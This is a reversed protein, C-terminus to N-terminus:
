RMCQCRLCVEGAACTVGCAGCHYYRGSDAGGDREGGQIFVNRGDCEMIGFELCALLADSPVDRPVDAGADSAGADVRQVDMPSGADVGTDPAGLDVPSPRDEPAGVDVTGVDSGADVAVCAGGSCVTGAGCASSCPGADPLLVPDAACATLLIAALFPLRM